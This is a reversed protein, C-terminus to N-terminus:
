NTVVIKETYIKDITKLQIFYVNKSLNSVDITEKFQGLFDKRENFYVVQGLSNIMTIEIDQRTTLLFVLEFQNTAPNPYIELEYYEQQYTFLDSLVQCSGINVYLKYVGNSPNYIISDNSIPQGNAYWQYEVEGIAGSVNSILNEGVNEISVDIANDCTTFFAKFTYNSNLNAGIIEPQEHVGMNNIIPNNEWHSFTFGSDPIAIINVPCGGHYVGNWPYNEPTVTSINIKGSNSPSVDLQINKQGQLNLSQNLHIRATNIRATNYSSINALANNWQFFSNLGGGQNAWLNIHDPIASSIQNKL